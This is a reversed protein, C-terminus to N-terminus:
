YCFAENGITTVSNPITISTLESCEKFANGEISTVSGPIVIESESGIYAVLKTKENDEYVFDGDIVTGKILRKAGWPSGFRESGAYYVIKVKFFALSGISTVSNPIVVSTLNYLEYFAHEQVTTVTYKVGEYEVESPIIIDGEIYEDKASVSVTHSIADEVTYTLDGITFDIAAASHVVFILFIMWCFVHRMADKIAINRM